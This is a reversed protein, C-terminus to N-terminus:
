KKKIIIDIEGDGYLRIEGYKTLVSIMSPVHWDPMHSM